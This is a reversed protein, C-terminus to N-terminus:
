LSELVRPAVEGLACQLVPQPVVFVEGGEEGGLGLVGHLVQELILRPEVVELLM